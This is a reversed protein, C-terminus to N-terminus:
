VSIADGSIGAALRRNISLQPGTVALVRPKTAYYDGWREFNAVRTRDAEALYIPSLGLRAVIQQLRSTATFFSWAFGRSKGFSILGSIFRPIETPALSALTSIELIETRRVRGGSLTGLIEDIPADLYHESFFGDRETRLGAACVIREGDNM